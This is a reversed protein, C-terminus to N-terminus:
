QGVQFYEFLALRDKKSLEHVLGAVKCLVNHDLLVLLVDDSQDHERM